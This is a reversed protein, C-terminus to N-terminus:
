LEWRWFVRVLLATLHHHAHPHIPLPGHYAGFGAYLPASGEISAQQSGGLSRSETRIKVHLAIGWFGLHASYRVYELDLLLM